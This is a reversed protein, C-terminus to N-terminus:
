VDSTGILAEFGLATRLYYNQYGTPADTGPLPPNAVPCAGKESRCRLGNLLLGRGLDPSFLQYPVGDPDAGYSGSFVPVNINATAWGGVGRASVYQSGPPASLAPSVFSTTSSYTVSNGDEAAQFVGGNFVAGPAPIAGGNKDVPSVLEWGRGDPLASASAPALCALLGLLAAIRGARGTKGLISFRNM